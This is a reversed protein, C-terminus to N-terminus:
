MWSCGGTRADTSCNVKIAVECQDAYQKFTVSWHQVGHVVVYFAAAWGSHARGEQRGIAWLEGGEGM